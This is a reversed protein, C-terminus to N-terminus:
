CSENYVNNFHLLDDSILEFVSQDVLYHRGSGQPSNYVLCLFVDHNFEFLKGDIKIWQICDSTSKIFKVYNLKNNIYM